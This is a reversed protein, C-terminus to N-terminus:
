TGEQVELVSNRGPQQTKQTVRLECAFQSKVTKELNITFKAAEVSFWKSLNLVLQFDLVVVELLFSRSGRFGAM